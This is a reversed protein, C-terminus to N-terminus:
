LPVYISVVVGRGGAGEVRGERNVFEKGQGRQSM